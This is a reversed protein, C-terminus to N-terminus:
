LGEMHDMVQWARDGYVDTVSQDDDHVGRDEARHLYENVFAGVGEFYTRAAKPDRTALCAATAYEVIMPRFEPPFQEVETTSSESTPLTPGKLFVSCRAEYSTDPLPWFEWQLAGPLGGVRFRTPRGTSLTSEAHARRMEDATIYSLEVSEDSYYLKRTALSDVTEGAGLGFFKAQVAYGEIDTNSLDSNAVSCSSALTITGTSAHSTSATILYWGKVVGTGGTVVFQDGAQYTYASTDLGTLQLESYDWNGSDISVGLVRLTARRERFWWDHRNWFWELALKIKQDVTRTDLFVGARALAMVIQQRMARLTYTTASMTGDQGSGVSFTALAAERADDRAARIEPLDEKRHMLALRVAAEYTAWTSWAAPASASGEGTFHQSFQRVRVAGERACREIDTGHASNSTVVVSKNAGLVMRSLEDEDVLVGADDGAAAIALTFEAKHIEGGSAETATAVCKLTCPLTLSSYDSAALDFSAQPLANGSGIISGTENSPAAQGDVATFALTFTSGAGIDVASGDGDRWYVRFQRDQGSLM